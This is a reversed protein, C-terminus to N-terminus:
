SVRTSNLRPVAEIRLRRPGAAATWSYSRVGAPTMELRAGSTEDVLFLRFAAPVSTLVGWSLTVREGAKSGDVVFRWRNGSGSLPPVFSEAWGSENGAKSADAVSSGSSLFALAVSREGWPPRAAALRAPKSGSFTTSGLRFGDERAFSLGSGSAIGLGIQWAGAGEVPAKLGGTRKASDFVLAAKAQSTWVFYGDLPALAGGGLDVRAYGGEPKWRWVGSGVWGRALATNWDVTEEGVRVRVSGLAFPLNFPVGVANWGAVLPVDFAFAREPEAGPIKVSKDRDLKLWHARGPGLPERLAPYLTHRARTIGFPFGRTLDAKARIGSAYRGLSLSAAPINLVRAADTQFPTVPLSILRWKNANRIAWSATIAGNSPPAEFVFGVGEAKNLGPTPATANFSWITNRQFRRPTVGTASTLFFSTKVPAGSPYTSPSFWAGRQVTGSTSVRTSQLTFLGQDVGTVVGYFGNLKAETGITNHAYFVTNQVGGVRFRLTIRAQDPTGLSDFSVENKTAPNEIEAEGAVENTTVFALRNSARLQPSLNTIDRGAEDFARLEGVGLLPMEDGEANTQFHSVLTFFAPKGSQFGPLPLMYAYLHEGAKVSTDLVYQRRIWDNWNMGEVSPVVSAAIASLVEANKGVVATNRNYYRANFQAFFLPNEVWVKLWAAQAMSFRVLALNYSSKQPSKFDSDEVSTYFYKNGLQPRNLFDYTSLSYVGYARPDFNAPRGQMQWNVILAAADTQGGDWADFDTLERGRFAALMQRTLNYRNYEVGYENSPFENLPFLHYFITNFNPNVTGNDLKPRADYVGGGVEEGSKVIRVTKGRQSPAPAGYLPVIKQYVKQIYANLDRTEASTFGEPVFKLPGSAVVRPLARAEAEAAASPDGRKILALTPIAGPKLLGARGFMRAAKKSPASPADQAQASTPFFSCTSAALSVLTFAQLPRLFKTIAM